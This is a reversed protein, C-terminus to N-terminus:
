RNIGFWAPFDDLSTLVVDAGADALEDTGCPGSAVAVAAAGAHRAGHVDAVHDGVYISAGHEVLATVKTEAFLEGAVADAEIGLARLHLEANPQYKGTVVIVSGGAERVSAVAALAGPMPVTRPVVVDPYLTRFRTVLEPIRDDPAGAARLGVPLPPGLRAAFGASDLAVGADASLADIADIMGERPDILTMDLDFGVCLGM